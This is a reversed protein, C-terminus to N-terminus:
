HKPTQSIQKLLKQSNREIDGRGLILQWKTGGLQRWLMASRIGAFLMTRIRDSVVTDTLYQMNGTVQIRFKLTSITDQYLGSLSSALNASNGSFHEQGYQLHKLRSSITDLMSSDQSLQKQVALMSLAYRAADGHEKNFTNNSVQSLLTLGGELNRLDNGYVDLTSEPDLIFLSEVLPKYSFEDCLSTKSLDNVAQAAQFLGALAITRDQKTSTM